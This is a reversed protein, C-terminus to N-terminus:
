MPYFRVGTSIATLSNKHYVTHGRYVIESRAIKQDKLKLCSERQKPDEVNLRAIAVGDPVDGYIAIEKEVGFSGICRQILGFFESGLDGM